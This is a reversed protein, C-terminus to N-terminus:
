IQFSYDLQTAQEAAELASPQQLAVIRDGLGFHDRLLKTVWYRANPEGTEWNLMTIGPFKSPYGILEAATLIDISQAALHGYMYAWVAGTMLWYSPPIPHPLTKYKAPMLISGLEDIDTTSQRLPRKCIEEIYGVTALLTDADKFITRQTIEPTEDFDTITYFHHSVRDVPIGPKHNNPDLFYSFFASEVKPNGLAPGVFKLSPDVARVAEVAADYLQTV